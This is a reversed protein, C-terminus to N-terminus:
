KAPFPTEAVPTVPHGKEFWGVLNDVVLQAMANRTFQSASGVHPLLVTNELKRLAEPVHPEEEFVDLGAGLITGDQLAKILAAEDIVTGRGINIVIGEPGLAEFVSEGVMHKTEEGGPAVLMLTDCAEALAMVSPYYPYAVGDQKSRGHYCITLGFAEARHAIAKGIRGLGVIGMIRGRLSGRTLPFSGKAEWNGARLWREAASLERTTSLLLAMAIDAVDETLVDPTNTVIVGRKECANADISDYGVGFNAIIKLNPFQDLYADDVDVGGAAIGVIDDKVSAIMGEPDESKFPQHVTFKESLEREVLPQMPKPM